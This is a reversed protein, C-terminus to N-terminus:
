IHLDLEPGLLAYEGEQGGLADPESSNNVRGRDGLFSIGAWGRSTAGAWLGPFGQPGSHSGQPGEM